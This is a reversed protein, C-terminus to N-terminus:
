RRSWVGFSGEGIVAPLATEDRLDMAFIRPSADRGRLSPDEFGSFIVTNGDPSVLPHSACYQEFFQLYFMQDASPWFRGLPRTDGSPERVHLVVGQGKERAKM